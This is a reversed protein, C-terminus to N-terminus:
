WRNRIGEKPFHPKLLCRYVDLIIEIREFEVLDGLRASDTRVLCDQQMKGHDRRIRTLRLNAMGPCVICASTGAQGPAAVAVIVVYPGEQVVALAAAETHPLDTLEGHTHTRMDEKHTDRVPADDM